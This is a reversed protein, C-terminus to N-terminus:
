GLELGVATMVERQCVLDSLGDFCDSATATLIGDGPVPFTALHQWAFPDIADQIGAAREEFQRWEGSM